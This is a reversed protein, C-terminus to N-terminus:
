AHANAPRNTAELVLSQDEAAKTVYRDAMDCPRWRDVPEVVDEGLIGIYGLCGGRYSSPYGREVRRQYELHFNRM